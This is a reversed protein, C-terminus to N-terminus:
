GSIRNVLSNKPTWSKGPNFTQRVGNEYMTVDLNKTFEIQNNRLMEDIAKRSVDLWAFHKANEREIFVPRKEWHVAMFEKLDKGCLISKLAECGLEASSSELYNTTNSTIQISAAPSPTTFSWSSHRVVTAQSPSPSRSSNSLSSSSSSDPVVEVAGNLSRQSGNQKSSKQKKAAPSANSTSPGAAM